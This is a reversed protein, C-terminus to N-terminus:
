IQMQSIELYNRKKKHIYDRSWCHPLAKKATPRRGTWQPDGASIPQRQRFVGDTRELKISPNEVHIKQRVAIFFIKGGHGRCKGRNRDRGLGRVAGSNALVGCGLGSLGRCVLGCRICHIPAVSMRALIRRGKVHAVAHIAKIRLDDCCAIGRILLRQGRAHAGAV